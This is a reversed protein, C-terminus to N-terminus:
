DVITYDNYSGHEYDSWMEASAGYVDEGEDEYYRKAKRVAVHEEGAVVCCYYDGHDTGVTVYWHM